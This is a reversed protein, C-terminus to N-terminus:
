CTIVKNASVTYHGANSELITRYTWQGSACGSAVSVWNNGTHSNTGENQWWTGTRHRQLTIKWVTGDGCEWKEGWARLGSGEKNPAYAAFWCANVGVEGSNDSAAAASPTAVTALALLAAILLTVAQRLNRTREHGEKATSRPASAPCTGRGFGCVHDQEVM